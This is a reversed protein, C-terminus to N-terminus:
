QIAHGFNFFFLLFNNLCAIFNMVFFINQAKNGDVHFFIKSEDVKKCIVIFGDFSDFDKSGDVNVVNIM